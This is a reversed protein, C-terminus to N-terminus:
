ERESFTKKIVSIIADIGLTKILFGVFSCIFLGFGSLAGGVIVILVDTVLLAKGIQLSSFKKIILAIIDTGGSSSDVYFMIGSALAILSAGIVSSLLMSGVIPESFAFLEEFVGVFVTTLLSGVLTKIAMSKGLFIFALIILLINIAVLIKGPSFSIFSNLIVSVGSTGGLLLSHPFIFIVTSLAYVASGILILLYELFM